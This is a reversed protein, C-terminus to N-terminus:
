EGRRVCRHLETEGALFAALKQSVHKPGDISAPLGGTESPVDLGFASLVFTAGEGRLILGAGRRWGDVRRRLGFRLGWWNLAVLVVGAAAMLRTALGSFVSTQRSPLDDALMAADGM